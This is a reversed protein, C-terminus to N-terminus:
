TKPIPALHKVVIKESRSVPLRDHLAIREAIKKNNQVSRLFEYTVHRGRNTLGTDEAFRKVLTRKLAIGEEAGLAPAFKEGPQM